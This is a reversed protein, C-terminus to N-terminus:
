FSYASPALRVENDNNIGNLKNDLNNEIDHLRGELNSISNKLEDDPATLRRLRNILHHLKADVFRAENNNAVIDHDSLYTELDTIKRNCIEIEEVVEPQFTVSVVLTGFPEERILDKLKKRMSINTETTGSLGRIKLEYELEDRTLRGLDM